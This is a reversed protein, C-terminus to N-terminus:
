ICECTGHRPVGNENLAPGIVFGESDTHRHGNGTNIGTAPERHNRCRFTLRSDYQICSSSDNFSQDDGPRNGAADKHVPVITDNGPVRNGGGKGSRTKTDTNIVSVPSQHRFVM